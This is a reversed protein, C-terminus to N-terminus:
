AAELDLSGRTVVWAGGVIVGAGRVPAPQLDDHISSFTTM